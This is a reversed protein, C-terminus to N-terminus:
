NARYETWSIVSVFANTYPMVNVAMVMRRVRRMDPARSLVLDLVVVCPPFVLLVECACIVVIPDMGMRGMAMLM